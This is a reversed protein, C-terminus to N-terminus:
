PRYVTVARSCAVEWSCWLLPQELSQPELGNTLGSTLYLTNIDGTRSIQKSAFGEQGLDTPEHSPMTLAVM